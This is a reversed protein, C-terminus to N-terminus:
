SEKVLELVNAPQPQGIEVIVHNTHEYYGMLLHANHVDSLKRESTVPIEFRQVLDRNHDVLLVKIVKGSPATQEPEPTPTVVPKPRSTVSAGQKQAKKKAYRKSGRQRWDERQHEECLVLTSNNGRPGRWRLETCGDRTCFRKDKM